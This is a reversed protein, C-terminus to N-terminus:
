GNEDSEVHSKLIVTGPGCTDSLNRCYLNFLLAEAAVGFDGFSNLMVTFFRTEFVNVSLKKTRKKIADIIETRGDWAFLKDVAQEVTYEEDSFYQWTVLFSASSSNSVFGLRTKM